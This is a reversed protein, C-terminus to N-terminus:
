KQLTEEKREDQTEGGNIKKNIEEAVGKKVLEKNNNAMLIISESVKKFDNVMKDIEESYKNMMENAFSEINITQSELKSIADKIAQGQKNIEDFMQNKAKELKEKEAKIDNVAQEATIKGGSFVDLTEKVKKGAKFVMLFFAAISGMVGIASAIITELNKEFFGVKDEEPIEELPPKEEAEYPGFTMNEEDLIICLEEEDVVLVIYGEEIRYSGEGELTEGSAYDNLIVSFTLDKNLTLESYGEESTYTYTKWEKIHEYEYEVVNEKNCVKCNQKRVGPETETAEKVIEWEGYDHGLAPIVTQEFLVEGCEGCVVGVDLGDETCTPAYGDVVVETHVHEKQEEKNETNEENNEVEETEVETANVKIGKFCSTNIIFVCCLAFFLGLIANKFSRRM